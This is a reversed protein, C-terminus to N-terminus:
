DFQSFQVKPRTAERRQQKFPQVGDSLQTKGLTQHLPGSAYRDGGVDHNQLFNILDCFLTLLCSEIRRPYYQIPFTCRNFLTKPTELRFTLLISGKLGMTQKSQVKSDNQM